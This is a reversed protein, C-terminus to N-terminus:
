SSYDIYTDIKDLRNQFFYDVVEDPYEGLKVSAVFQGINYAIQMLKVLSLEFKEMLCIRYLQVFFHGADQNKVMFNGNNISCDVYNLLDNGPKLFKEVAEKHSEKVSFKVITIQEYLTKLPQWQQYGDSNSSRVTQGTLIVTDWLHHLHIM